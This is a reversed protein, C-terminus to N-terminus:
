VLVLAYHTSIKIKLEMTGNDGARDTNTNYYDALHVRFTHEGIEFSMCLYRSGTGSHSPTAM